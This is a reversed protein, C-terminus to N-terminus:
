YLSGSFQEPGPNSIQSGEEFTQPTVISNNLKV